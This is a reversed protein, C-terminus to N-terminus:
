LVRKNIRSTESIATNKIKKIQALSLKVDNYNDIRYRHKM